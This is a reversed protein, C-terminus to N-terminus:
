RLTSQESEPLTPKLTIGGFGMRLYVHQAASTVEGTFRQGILFRAKSKGTFDSSVKGFKNKADIVYEGADPLWVIIDGRHCTVHIDGTVGSISVFGIDHRVEVKTTRPVYLHYEVRIPNRNPGWSPPWWLELHNPATTAIEVEGSKQATATVQV